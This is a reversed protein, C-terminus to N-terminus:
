PSGPLQADDRSPQAPELDRLLFARAGTWSREVSRQSIGLTAATEPVTLGAFFRLKAVESMRPSEAHLRDLSEDIALIDEARKWLTGDATQEPLEVRVQGSGRKVRAYRRARDVLIRRMAESAAAFFHGRNEFRVEGDSGLLRLYAEHVLATPGLTHGEPERSMKGRALRRLEDYVAAFLRASAQEREDKSGTRAARLIRTIDEM